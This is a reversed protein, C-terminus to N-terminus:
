TKLFNPYTWFSASRELIIPPRETHFVPSQPRNFMRQCYKTSDVNSRHDEGFIIMSLTWRPKCWSARSARRATRRRWGISTWRILAHTYEGRFLFASEKRNDVSLFWETRFYKDFSSSIIFIALLDFEFNVCVSVITMPSSCHPRSSTAQTSLLSRLFNPRKDQAEYCSLRVCQHWM